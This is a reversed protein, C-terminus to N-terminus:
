NGKYGRQQRYRKGKSGTSHDKYNCLFKKGFGVTFAAGDGGYAANQAKRQHHDHIYCQSLM